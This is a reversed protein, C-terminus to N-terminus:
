FRYTVGTAILWPNLDAKGTYGTGAVTVDFDPELFIKKVDFNIGWHRDIMYDFGAQLAWGWANKVSLDTTPSNASQSYFITYNVGAGVYPQFAGFDTFHYQLTLTPPLIWTKGITGLSATTGEGSIYSYTTGLILEVSINKTFFYSIDLEPTVSSSYSLDSGAIQDVSGGDEPLVALARVRIQWPSWTDVVAPAKTVMPSLDAASVPAAAFAATAIALLAGLGFKKM